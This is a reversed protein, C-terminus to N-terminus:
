AVTLTGMMYSMRGMPAQWGSVGSGCPDFCQWMYTGAKGTIFTFSVTIGQHGAPADGPIPVSLGLPLVTFTHAVKDDALATYPVGDVAASNGVTGKVAAFPSGAPLPTDGPDDNVITVTVRAHAPVTFDAPVYAPGSQTGPKVMMITLHLQARTLPHAAAVAHPRTVGIMVSCFILGFAVYFAPLLLIVNSDSRHSTHATRSRLYATQM